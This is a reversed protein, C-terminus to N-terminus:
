SQIEWRGGVAQVHDQQIATSGHVSETDGMARWCNTHSRAPYSYFWGSVRYRGDGAWLPYTIKSSLQLVVCQSQRESQWGVARIHDQQIATSSRVSETDGMAWGCCTHSRLLYGSFWTSVRDRGDVGLLSYTIKTSPRQVMCQNQREWGM